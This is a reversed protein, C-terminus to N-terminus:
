PAIGFRAGAARENSAITGVVSKRARNAVMRLRSPASALRVCDAIPESSVPTGNGSRPNKAGPFVWGGGLGVVVTAPPDVVVTGPPDVVTGLVVIGAGVVIWSVEVTGAVVTDAVVTADVVFGVVVVGTGAVVTDAVMTEAVMTEAVM